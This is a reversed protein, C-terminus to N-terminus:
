SFFNVATGIESPANKRINWSANEIKTADYKSLIFTEHIYKQCTFSGGFLTEIKQSM